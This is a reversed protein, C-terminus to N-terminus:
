GEEKKKDRSPVEVLTTRVGRLEPGTAEVSPVSCRRGLVGMFVERGDARRMRGQRSAAAQRSGARGSRAAVECVMVKLAMGACVTPLEMVTLAVALEPRGTLKVMTGFPLQLREPLVTVKSLVPFQPTM